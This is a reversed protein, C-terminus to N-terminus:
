IKLMNAYNLVLSEESDSEVVTGDIYDYKKSKDEGNKELYCRYLSLNMDKDIDIDECSVKDGTVKIDNDRDGNKYVDKYDTIPQNNNETKWNVVDQEVTKAYNLISQKNANERSDSIIKITIPIAILALIAMIVIVGLLEVLTFGKKKM